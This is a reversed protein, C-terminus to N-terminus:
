NDMQEYIEEKLFSLDKMKPLDIIDKEQVYCLDKFKCFKCGILENDIRKPNIDFNANYIEDIAYDIKEEVLSNLKDISENKLIKAYSYFGNKSIKMGKILESDKYTIDFQELYKEDDLSYGELKLQKRKQNDYDDGEYTFDNNLLKQIYFGVIKANDFQQSKKILHIYIPLQMNLGYITNALDIEVNGTKYDIICILTENDTIKYKIKDIFGKFISNKKKPIVIKLENNESHFTTLKEQYELTELIFKLENKLKNLFFKEKASLEKKALYQNYEKEFNFNSNKHISLIYHFLNGIFTQFNDEFINLKLFDNIFYKFACNYYNNISSYSLVLKKNIYKNIKELSIKKYSNDYKQYPINKYNSYLIELMEDKENYKVYNDLKKALLIQNYSESYDYMNSINPNYIINESIEDIISSKYFIDYATKLKYTITLNKIRYINNLINIKEIKNKQISTDLSLIEKLYDPIYEEDKFIKPFFGQNCGVLFVYDNDNVANLSVIEIANSLKENQLYTHKFKYILCEIYCNDIKDIFCLQNLVTIVPDYISQEDITELSENVTIGQKLNSIFKKVLINNYLSEKKNINIPIDYFSFIKSIEKFYNDQAILKIKNIDIGKEILKLIKIAVYTVENEINDFEIITPIFKNKIPLSKYSTTTYKEIINSYKKIEFTIEYGFFIVNTHRLYETFYQDYYLLKNHDLEKKLDLLLKLKPIDFCKNDVYYMNEIYNLATEYKYNFNKMLYYIAEEDYDFLIKKKLQDLTMFKIPLMKKQINLYNLIKEKNELETVILTYSNIKELFDM